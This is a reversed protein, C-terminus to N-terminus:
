LAKLAKDMESFLPEALVPLADKLKAFADQKYLLYQWLEHRSCSDYVVDTNYGPWLWGDFDSPKMQYDTDKERAKNIKELYSLAHIPLVTMPTKGAIHAFRIWKLLEAVAADYAMPALMFTTDKKSFKYEDSGKNFRWISRGDGAVVQAQTTRRAVQWYVHALWFRLLYTTRASNPLINLWLKQSGAPVMGKIPLQGHTNIDPTVVTTMVEVCPTLLVHSANSKNRDDESHRNDSRPIEIGLARLQESFAQCQKQLQLQQYELTSQRAIGAPMVPNYLLKSLTGTRATATTHHNMDDPDIASEGAAMGISMGSKKNLEDLLQVNVEYASLGTLSLPEQQAMEDEPLVMQVQQERLFHKAPHRVQYYLSQMDIQNIEIREDANLAEVKLTDALEIRQAISEYEEPSPLTVKMMAANHDPSHLREFVEHWVRAPANTSKQYTKEKKMADALLGMLAQGDDQSSSSDVDMASPEADSQLFVEEAFPLASHQTVLWQEILKPLYRQVQAALASETESSDEAVLARQKNKIQETQLPDWQWQVEGQLFQLLESVPNAPLHEHTDTLRQGNYFIWCANRACLLADLFAGNDDDESFRDGRRALGSKMLDYRNDRDRSPFEALDMNLMVVLGFPVNRLAGFRGFTIVGTPEASVQQSELEDEISDLMFSLKLPLNNVQSLRSEVQSAEVQLSESTSKSTNVAAKDVATNSQSDDSTDAMDGTHYRQYHRNARLSSKFGNMANFIARMPRTQDLAGFYPHIISNEINNLWDEASHTAQFEYRCHDLGRHIRCLGEIIAADALGIASIPVTKEALVNEQWNDPYLCDSIDAEPMLLGLALKDLAHAFSFRYDYDDIDLTQQLHAEDFGRIFGAQELLDCARSMQEHTLGFSEYLPSLMLWDFVEAAEFRASDSGLLGYFGRIAEWLQQISKDVVGTVKAPLTLGDQGQGHVFVSNILEHHRDVDPLLVVIDSLHRKSGDENADNLWRGIMGRLVELQRQLNHCSHISLSNDYQSLQWHRPQEYRKDKLIDDSYWLDSSDHDDANANVDSQMQTNLAASLRGATTQQTAGEDLMLVDQQLHALLSLPQEAITEITDITKTPKTPKTTEVSQEDTNKTVSNNTINNSAQQDNIDFKDQWDLRFGKTDENGSLSALMAFTERSQKGLRSLLTHGYDRLFVNEPNIVQQRQLWQKDVIDAWFLQSPNYHLLVIDVHTSLRQLFNLENQPLQQITFIHLQAPLIAQVDVGTDTKDQSMIQWFRREVSSRHEYVSAFLLRWLHRQAVELELYHEMLWEPTGSAYKDFEMTLKDKEAILQEVDVQKNASWLELWDERHTLYRSFVRSFDTALSWLRVDQQSRDSEDDLLASLLPYLPHKDDGMIQAQYYTFYGFLRWQMVSGTLVAVEPVTIAEKERQNAKLWVNHEALVRQMLTWQYQGWFTTTVLTSIGAQSAISKDLWDGLVMSPVIVIFEEFIPLDKSQYAALLQEVLQETRHSQIITFM